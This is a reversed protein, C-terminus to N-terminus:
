GKLTADLDSWQNQSYELIIPFNPYENNLGEM